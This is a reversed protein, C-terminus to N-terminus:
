NMEALTYLFQAYGVTADVLGAIKPNTSDILFYEDPAHAAGGTSLGFRGVPIGVPPQTFNGGPWSGALRVTFSPRVDLQTYTASEARILRSNPDTETPDYNGSSNIEVDTFGRKDLHGRLKQLAEAATQNPVLRFDLKAVARAPLITKGGPGTYGAVLGEINVTPDSVLRVWAEDLSIDDVWRSVGLDEKIQSENLHKVGQRIIARERDTLPRVNEFWGDIAPRSGDATVLSQLAQVLRWAPSDVIAKLSSHVDKRPGRGWKEGTVVLELELIGKAGLEISADGDLSQLACPMFVCECKKLAALVEPRTVIQRLHPSGVEEEGECIMVLNVPPQQGAARIAHLAALFSGEPGKQNVAGRGIMVTGLNEREVLRAELPPSSWEVPDYQKVDYMFYLGITRAAGVDYTGFVGPHGNTPIVRVNTFGAEKALQAFYSAGEAMNRNEAAISPLAIWDGIRKISAEKGAAAAERIAAMPSAQAALSGPRMLIAGAGLAAAGRVIERRNPKGIDM